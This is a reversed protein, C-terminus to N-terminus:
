FFRLHRQQTFQYRVFLFADHKYYFIILPLMKHQLSISTGASLM